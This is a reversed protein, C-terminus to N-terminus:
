HGPFRAQFRLNSVNFGVLLVPQILGALVKSGGILASMLCLTSIRTISLSFQLRM